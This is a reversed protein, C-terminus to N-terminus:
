PGPEKWLLYYLPVNCGGAAQLPAQPHILLGHATLPQEISLCAGLFLLGRARGAQALQL